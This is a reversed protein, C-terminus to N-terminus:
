ARTSRAVVQDLPQDGPEAPLEVLADVRRHSRGGSCVNAAITITTSSTPASTHSTRRARPAAGPGGRSLCDTSVSSATVAASSRARASAASASPRWSSASTSPKRARAARCTSRPRSSSVGPAVACSTAPTRARSYGSRPGRTSVRRRARRSPATRRGAPWGRAPARRGRGRRRGPPLTRTFRSAVAGRWAASRRRTRAPRRRPSRTSRRRGPSRCGSRGQSGRARVAGLRHGPHELVLADVDVDRARGVREVVLVTPASVVTTTVEVSCSPSLVRSRSSSCARRRGAPTRRARGAPRGALEAEAAERLRVAEAVPAVGVHSSGSNSPSVM